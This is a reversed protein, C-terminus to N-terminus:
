AFLTTKSVHCELLHAHCGPSVGVSVPRIISFKLFKPSFLAYIGPFRPFRGTRVAPGSAGDSCRERWIKGRERQFSRQGLGPLFNYGSTTNGFTVSVWAKRLLQLKIGYRTRAHKAEIKRKERNKKNRKRERKRKKEIRKHKM